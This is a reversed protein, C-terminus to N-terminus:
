TAAYAFLGLGQGVADGSNGPSEVPKIAGYRQDQSVPDLSKRSCTRSSNRTADQTVDVAAVPCQAVQVVDVAVCDTAHGMNMQRGRLFGNKAQPSHTLFRPPNVQNPRGPKVVNSCEMCPPTLTGSARVHTQLFQDTRQGSPGIGHHDLM